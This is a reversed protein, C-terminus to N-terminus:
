RAMRRERLRRRIYRVSWIADPVLLAFITVSAGTLAGAVFLALYDNM